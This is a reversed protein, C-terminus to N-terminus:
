YFFFCSVKSNVNKDTATVVVPVPPSSIPEVSGMTKEDPMTVVASTITNAGAYPLNTQGLTASSTDNLINSSLSENRIQKNKEQQKKILNQIESSQQRSNSNFLSSPNWKTQPLAEEKSIDVPPEEQRSTPLSLPSSSSVVPEEITNSSTENVSQEGSFFFVFLIVTLLIM